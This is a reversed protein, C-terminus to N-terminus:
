FNDLDNHFSTVIFKIILNGLDVFKAISSLYLEISIIILLSILYECIIAHLFFNMASCSFYM